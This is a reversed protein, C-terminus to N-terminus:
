PAGEDALRELQHRREPSLGQVEALFRAIALDGFEEVLAQVRRTAVTRLFQDETLAVRYVHTKGRLERALLGKGVLRGMVTMVTTYALPRGATGLQALIERVTASGRAWMLRMIGAELDGLLHGTASDMGIDTDGGNAM